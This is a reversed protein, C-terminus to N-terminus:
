DLKIFYHLETDPFSEPYLIKAYDKLVLDPRVVGSEWYDNGGMTHVKADSQYIGRQIENAVNEYRGDKAYLEELSSANPNIWVEDQASQLVVQEFSLSLSGVKDDGEWSYTGNADRLLNAVYSAGGPIYWVGQYMSSFLVKTKKDQTACQEKVAEYDKKIQGFVEDAETEKDLLAGFVKIWEARALPHQEQWEIIPLVAVDAKKLKGLGDTEEHFDNILVIEPANLIIKELNLQGLSGTEMIAGSEYEAHVQEHYIFSINEVYKISGLEGLADLFGVFSSSFISVDAIPTYIVNAVSPAEMGKPVLLFESTENSLPDAIRLVQFGDMTDIEFGEAYEVDVAEQPYNAPGQSESDSESSPNCAVFLLLVGLIYTVRIVM